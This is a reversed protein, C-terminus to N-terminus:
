DKKSFLVLLAGIVIFCDALNFFIKKLFRLKKINLNIFDTVYGQHFRDYWNSLGGGIILALGAKGVRNRKGRVARFLRIVFLLVAAATIRKVVAPKDKLFGLALGKNHVKRFRLKGEFFSRTEGEEFRAEVYKKAMLDILCAGVAILILGM